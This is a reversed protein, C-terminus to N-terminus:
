GVLKLRKRNRAADFKEMGQKMADAQVHVYCM